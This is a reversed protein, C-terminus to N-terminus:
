ALDTEDPVSPPIKAGTENRPPRHTIAIAEFRENQGIRGFGHQLAAVKGTDFVLDLGDFSPLSHTDICNGYALVRRIVHIDDNFHRHPSVRDLVLHVLIGTRQDDIAEKVRRHGIRTVIAEHRVRQGVVAVRDINEDAVGTRQNGAAHDIDARDAHHDHFIIAALVLLDEGNRSRLQRATVVLDVIVGVQRFDRQLLDFMEELM